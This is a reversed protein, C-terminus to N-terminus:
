CQDLPLDRMLAVRFSILVTSCHQLAVGLHVNSKLKALTWRAPVGPSYCALGVGKRASKIASILGGRLNADSM